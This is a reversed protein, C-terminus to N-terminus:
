SAPAWVDSRKIREILARPDLKRFSAPVLFLQASQPGTRINELAVTGGDPSHWRIPFHLASDIVAAEGTPECRWESTGIGAVVAAIQWQRCPDHPDVRVFVRTLPTSQKADMFVQQAPRVFFATRAISDTVFFGGSGDVFDMRTKFDSVHLKGAVGTVMGTPDRTVIDACFQPSPVDARSASCMSFALFLALSAPSTSTRTMGSPLHSFVGTQNNGWVPM